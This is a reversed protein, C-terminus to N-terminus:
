AWQDKELTAAAIGVYWTPLDQEYERQSERSWLAPVILLAGLRSVIPAEDSATARKAPIMGRPERLINYTGHLEFCVVGGYM